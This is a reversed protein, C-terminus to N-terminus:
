GIPWGPLLSWCGPRLEPSYRVASRTVMVAAGSLSVKVDWLNPNTISQRQLLGPLTERENQFQVPLGVCACPPPVPDSSLPLTAAKPPVVVETVHGEEPAPSEERDLTATGGENQNRRAM